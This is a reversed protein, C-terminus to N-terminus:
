VAARLGAKESSAVVMNRGSRKAAYLARDAREYLTRFDDPDAQGAHRFEALGMSVTVRDLEGRDGMDVRLSEVVQRLRGAVETARNLDTEPLVVAFEEGGVRGAVDSARLTSRFIDALQSLLEDGAQHGYTDNVLKFHDVDLLLLSLCTGYRDARELEGATLEFFHRRNHLGTLDDRNAMERTKELLRVRESIDHLVLARGLYEGCRGTVPSCTLAFHRRGEPGSVVLDRRLAAAARGASPPAGAVAELLEPYARLVENAPRALGEARGIGIVSEAARNLDVLRGHRDVVIVGDALDEIVKDRAVPVMSFLGYRFLGVAVLVCSFSLLAVAPNYDSWAFLDFMYLVSGVLPLLVAFLLLGYHLRELRDGRVIGRALVLLTAINLLMMTPMLVYWYWPGYDAHLVSFPATGVELSPSGRFIQWPNIFALPVTMAPLIWLFATLARPVRVPGVYRRVMEWLCVSITPVGLFQMNAFFIKSELTVASLEFAYGVAWVIVTVLTAAFWTAM